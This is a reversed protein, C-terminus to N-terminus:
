VNLLKLFGFGTYALVTFKILKGLFVVLLYKRLPVKSIGSIIGAFDFLPNPIIALIFVVWLGYKDMWKKVKEIKKNNAIIEEGGKGAFYGTLEGVTSGMSSFLATLIPSSFAGVAITAAFSPVPFVITASGILNILFVGLYGFSQFDRFKLSILFAIISFLISTVLILIGLTKKTIKIKTM